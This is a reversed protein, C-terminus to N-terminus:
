TTEEFEDVRLLTDDSWDDPGVMKNVKKEANERAILNGSELDKKIREFEAKEIEVLKTYETERIVTIIAKM